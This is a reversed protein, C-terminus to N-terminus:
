HILVQVTGKVSLIPTMHYVTYHGRHEKGASVACNLGLTFVVSYGLSEPNYYGLLGLSWFVDEDSFTLVEAKCVKTGVSNAVWEKM